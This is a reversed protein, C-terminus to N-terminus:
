GSNVEKREIIIQIDQINIESMGTEIRKTNRAIKQEM